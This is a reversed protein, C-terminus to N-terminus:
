DAALDPPANIGVVQRAAMRELERRGPLTDLPFAARLVRDHRAADHHAFARLTTGVFGFNERASAPLLSV